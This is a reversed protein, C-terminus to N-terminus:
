CLGVITLEKEYRNNAYAEVDYSRDVSAAATAATIPLTGNFQCDFTAGGDAWTACFLGM